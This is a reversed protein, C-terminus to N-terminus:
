SDVSSRLLLFLLSSFLSLLVSHRRNCPYFTYFLFHFTGIFSFYFSLSFRHYFRHCHCRGYFLNLYFYAKDHDLVSPLMFINRSRCHLLWRWENTRQICCFHTQKQNSCTRKEAMRGSHRSCRNEKIMVRRFLRFILRMMPLWRVFTFSAFITFVNLIKITNEVDQAQCITLSCRILLIGYVFIEISNLIIPPISFSLLCTLWCVSCFAAHSPLLMFRSWSISVFHAYFSLTCRIRHEMARPPGLVLRCSPLRIPRSTYVSLLIYISHNARNTCYWKGKKSGRWGKTRIHFAM